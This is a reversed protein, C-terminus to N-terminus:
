LAPQAREEITDLLDWFPAGSPEVQALMELLELADADRGAESLARSTLIWLIPAIRDAASYQYTALVLQSLGEYRQGSDWLAMGLNARLSPDDPVRRAGVKLLRAALESRGADLLEIAGIYALTAVYRSLVPVIKAPREERHLWSDIDLAIAAPEISDTELMAATGDALPLPVAPLNWTAALEDSPKIWVTVDSVEKQVTSWRSSHM